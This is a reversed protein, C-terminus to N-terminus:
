HLCIARWRWHGIPQVTEKECKICTQNENKTTTCYISM